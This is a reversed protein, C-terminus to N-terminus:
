EDVQAEADIRAELNKLKKQIRMHEMFTDLTVEDEPTKGLVELATEYFGGALIPVGMQVYADGLLMNAYTNNPDLELVAIYEDAAASTQRKGEYALGRNVLASVKTDQPMSPDLEMSETFDNIARDYESSELYAHARNGFFLAKAADPLDHSLAASFDNIAEQTRGLTFYAMGRNNLFVVEDYPDLDLKLVESFITIALIPYKQAGDPMKPMTRATQM